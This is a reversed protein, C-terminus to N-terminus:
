KAEMADRADSYVDCWVLRQEGSLPNGKPMKLTRIQANMAKLTGLDLADANSFDLGGSQTGSNHCQVCNANVFQQLPSAPAQLALPGAGQRNARLEQVLTRVERLLLVDDSALQQQADLSLAEYTLQSHGAIASQTLTTASEALRRSQDLLLARDLGQAQYVSLGQAAYPVAPTTFQYTFYTNNQTFPQPAVAVPAVYPACTRCPRGAFALQPSLLTLLALTLRATKM